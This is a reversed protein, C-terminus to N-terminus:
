PNVVPGIHFDGFTMTDAQYVQGGNNTHVINTTGSKKKAPAKRLAPILERLKAALRDVDIESSRFRVEIDQCAHLRRLEDPLDDISVRPIGLRVPIVQKDQEFAYLIERRVFDEPDDLRRGNEDAANIWNHGMIVLVAASDEIAQFMAREWMAGLPISKSALFVAESGFEKSLKADLLAVGFLDDDVRYNLFLQTM